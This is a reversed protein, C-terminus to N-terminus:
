RVTQACEPASEFDIYFTYLVVGGETFYLTPMRIPASYCATIRRAM